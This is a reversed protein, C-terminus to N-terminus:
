TRAVSKLQYATQEVREANVVHMVEFVKRLEEVFIKLDKTVSSNIFSQPNVRLFERIRSTNAM